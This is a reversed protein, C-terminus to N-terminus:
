KLTKFTTIYLDNDENAGMIDKPLDIVREEVISIQEFGANKMEDFYIQQHRIGNLCGTFQKIKSFAPENFCEKKNIDAMCFTGGTKLVRFVEAFAQDLNPLLSFVGNSIVCNVSKKLPINEIDAQEFSINKFKNKVVINTAREILKQTLDLGLIHGNEGVMKRVIFSDVGAACGLDIVIDDKKINAYLFPFGFGLGLDSAEEYGEFTPYRNKIPGFIPECVLNRQSTSGEEDNLAVIKSYEIDIQGKLDM